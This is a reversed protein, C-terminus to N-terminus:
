ALCLRAKPGLYVFRYDSAALRSALVEATTGASNAADRPPTAEKADRRMDHYENLWDDQFYRPLSYAQVRECSASPVDRRM